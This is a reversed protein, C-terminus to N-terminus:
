ARRMISTLEALFCSITVCSGGVSVSNIGINSSNEFMNSLNNQINIFYIENM